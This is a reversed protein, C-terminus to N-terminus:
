RSKPIRGAPLLRWVATYIVGLILFFLATTNFAGSHAFPNLVRDTVNLIIGGPDTIVDWTNWRLHRGLYIAFSSLLLVLAALSHSIGPSFRKLFQKHVMYLSTFGLTFGALVLLSILGIDFIESVEGTPYVHIYDTLVYWSNPLFMLWLLSLGINQWSLWRKKELGRLLLWAAILSIWALFLNEPIFWYRPTGTVALRCVFLVLCAASILGVAEVFRKETYSRFM